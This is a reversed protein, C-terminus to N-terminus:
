PLLSLYLGYTFSGAGSHVIRARWTRPLGIPLALGIGGMVTIGPGLAVVLTSVTAVATSQLLPYYTGAPDKGEIVLQVTQAGPVVTINWYLYASRYRDNTQDSTMATATRAASAFLTQDVSAPLATSFNQVAVTPIAAFAPLTGSITVAPTGQVTANVSQTGSYTTTVTGSVAVTGSVPVTGIVTVDLPDPASVPVPNASTNAVTVNDSGGGGGPFEDPNTVHVRLPINGQTRDPDSM